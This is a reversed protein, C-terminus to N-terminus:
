LVKPAFGALEDVFWQPYTIKVDIELGESKAIMAARREASTTVRLKNREKQANHCAIFREFTTDMAAQL